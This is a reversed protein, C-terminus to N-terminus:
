TPLNKVMGVIYDDQILQIKYGPIIHGGSSKLLFSDGVDLRASVNNDYYIVDPDNSSPTLDVLAKSIILICNTDNIVQLQINSNATSGRIVVVTWNGDSHDEVSLGVSPYVFPVHHSTQMYVYLFGVHTILWVALLVVVIAIKYKSTGSGSAPPSSPISM